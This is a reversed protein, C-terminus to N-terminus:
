KKSVVGQVQLCKQQTLSWSFCNEQQTYVPCWVTQYLPIRQEWSSNFEPRIDYAKSNTFNKSVFLNSDVIWVFYVPPYVASDLKKEEKEQDCCREILKMVNDVGSFKLLHDKNLTFQLLLVIESSNGDEKIEFKGFADISAFTKSVPTFM